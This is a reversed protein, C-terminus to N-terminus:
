LFSDHIPHSLANVKKLACKVGAPVTVLSGLQVASIHAVAKAAVPPGRSLQGVGHM